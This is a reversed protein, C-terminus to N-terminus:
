LIRSQQRLAIKINHESFFKSSKYM